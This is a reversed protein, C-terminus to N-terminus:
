VNVTVALLTAPLLAADVETVATGYVEAPDGNFRNAL